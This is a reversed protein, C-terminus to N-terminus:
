EERRLELSESPNSQAVVIVAAFGRSSLLVNAIIHFRTNM